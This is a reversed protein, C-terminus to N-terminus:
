YLPILEKKKGDIHQSTNGEIGLLDQIGVESLLIDNMAVWKRLVVDNEKKGNVKM